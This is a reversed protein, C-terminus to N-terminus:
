AETDEPTMHGATPRTGAAGAAARGTALCSTSDPKEPLRHIKLPTGDASILFSRRACLRRELKSTESKKKREREREGMSQFSSKKYFLSFGSTHPAVELTSQCVNGGLLQTKIGAAAM